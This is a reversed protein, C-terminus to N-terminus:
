TEHRTNAPTEKPPFSIQIAHGNNVILLPSTQFRFQIESLAARNASNQM